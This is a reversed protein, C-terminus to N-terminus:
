AARRPTDVSHRGTSLGTARLTLYSKWLELRHQRCYTSTSWSPVPGCAPCLNASLQQEV